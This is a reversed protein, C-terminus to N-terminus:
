DEPKPLVRTLFKVFDESVKHGLKEAAKVQDWASLYQKNNYYAIGLDICAQAYDPKIKVAKQLEWIQNALNGLRGYVMGLQYHVEANTSDIEISKKFAGVADEILTDVLSYSLGLNYYITENNPNVECAEQFSIISKDIIGNKRYVVGLHQYSVSLSKKIDVTKQYYQIGQEPKGKHGSLIGLHKYMEILNIYEEVAIDYEKIASNYRLNFERELGREFHIEGAASGIRLADNLKEEAEDWMERRLLVIGMKILSKVNIPNMRWVKEYEGYAAELLGKISYADGLSFYLSTDAPNETAAIKLNDIIEDITKEEQSLVTKNLFFILLITYIFIIKYSNM